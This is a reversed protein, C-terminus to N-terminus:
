PALSKRMNAETGTEFVVEYGMSAYLSRAVRNWSFV